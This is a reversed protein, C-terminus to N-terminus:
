KGDLNNKQVLKVFAEALRTQNKVPVLSAMSIFVFDADGRLKKAEEATDEPKKPTFLSEDIGNHLLEVKETDGGGKKGLIGELVGKSKNCVAIVKDAANWTFTSSLRGFASRRIGYNIEPVTFVDNGHTHVIIPKRLLRLSALAALAFGLPFTFQVHIM